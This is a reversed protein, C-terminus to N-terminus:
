RKRKSGKPPPFPSRRREGQKGSTGRKEELQIWDDVSLRHKQIKRKGNEDVEYDEESMWENYKVMGTVWNANVRWVDGPSTINEPIDDQFEIM